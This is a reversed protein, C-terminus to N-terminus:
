PRDACRRAAREGCLVRFHKRGGHHGRGYPGAGTVSRRVLRCRRDRTHKLGVHHESERITIRRREARTNEAAPNEVCVPDLRSMPGYTSETVESSIRGGEVLTHMMPPPMMPVDAAKVSADRPM